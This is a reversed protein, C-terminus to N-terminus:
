DDNSAYKVVSVQLQKKRATEIMNKTGKSKGDWFAILMDGYDAMQSNRIIGAARGYGKWDAPFKKVELGKEEAYQEGLTDVGKAGGSVIEIDEEANILQEDCADRLKDYDAFDRGGAIIVKLMIICRHKM